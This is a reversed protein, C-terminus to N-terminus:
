APGSRSGRSGKTTPPVADGESEEFIPDIEDVVDIWEEFSKDTESASWALRYTSEATAETAGSLESALIHKPKVKVITEEDDIVIKFRTAM